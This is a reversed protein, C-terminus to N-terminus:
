NKPATPTPNGQGKSNRLQISEATISGDPNTTGTIILDQGVTVDNLSGAVMKSVPTATTFFVVKSSGDKAQVTMSTADKSILTGGAFNGGARGMRNGGGNPGGGFGNATNNVPPNSQASKTGAYFSLSGVIIVVIVMTLMTKKNM